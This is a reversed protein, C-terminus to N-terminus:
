RRRWGDMQGADIAINVAANDGLPMCVAGGIERYGQTGVGAFVEGHPSKDTKGDATKAPGGCPGIPGRMPDPGQDMHDSLRLTDAPIDPRPAGGDPAGSATPIAEQARAALPSLSLALAALVGLPLSLAFMAPGTVTIAAAKISARHM